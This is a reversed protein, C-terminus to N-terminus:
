RIERTPRARRQSADNWFAPGSKARLPPRPRCRDAGGGARRADGIAVVSLPLGMQNVLRRQDGPTSGADAGALTRVSAHAPETTAPARAPRGPRRANLKEAIMVQLRRVFRFEVGFDYPWSRFSTPM